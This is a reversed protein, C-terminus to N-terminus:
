GFCEVEKDIKIFQQCWRCHNNALSGRPSWVGCGECPEYDQEACSHCVWRTEDDNESVIQVADDWVIRCGCHACTGFKEDSSHGYTLECDTCFISDSACIPEKGCRLCDVPEGILFTPQNIKKWRQYSYYPQLYTSSHLLDNFHYTNQKETICDHRGFLRKNIILYSDRLSINGNEAYAVCENNSRSFSNVYDTSWSSFDSGFFERINELVFDLISQNFFPYQKGAFVIDRDKSFCLLMRWKKDNWLVDKPFRPLTVDDRGKLYCVITSNDAIYNINGTRFEGDLAHCSRWNYNNESISLYDLPHVSFCLQGTIHTEQIIMSAADQFNRLENEDKIFFKVARLLKMGVPIISGDRMCYSNVVKNEYFGDRQLSIFEFLEDNRNLLENSNLFYEFYDNRTEEALDFSITNPLQFILGNFKEIFYAKNCEWQSFLQDTNLTIENCGQSYKIVKEFQEKLEAINYNM